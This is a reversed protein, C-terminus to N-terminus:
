DPNFINLKLIHNIKNLKIKIKNNFKLSFIFVNKLLYEKNNKITIINVIILKINKNIVSTNELCIPLQFENVIQKQHDREKIKKSAITIIKLILLKIILLNM